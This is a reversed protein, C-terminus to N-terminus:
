TFHMEHNTIFYPGTSRNLGYLNYKYVPRAQPVKMFLLINSLEKGTLQMNAVDQVLVNGNILATRMDKWSIVDGNEAGPSRLLAVIASGDLVLSWMNMRALKGHYSHTSKHDGGLTTQIQGIRLIGGSPIITDVKYGSVDYKVVGDLFFQTKGDM